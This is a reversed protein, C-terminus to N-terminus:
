RRASPAAPGSGRRMPDTGAPPRDAPRADRRVAAAGACVGAGAGAVAGHLAAGASAAGRAAAGTFAGSRDSGSHARAGCPCGPTATRRRCRARRARRARFLQQDGRGTGGQVAGRGGAAGGGCAMRSASPAARTTVESGARQAPSWPRGRWARGPGRRRGRGGRRCGPGAASTGRRPSRPCRWRRRVAGGGQQGGYARLAAPRPRRRCRRSGAASSAARRRRPRGGRGGPAGSPGPCPRGPVRVCGGCAGWPRRRARRALQLGREGRVGFAPLHGLLQGDRASRAREEIWM